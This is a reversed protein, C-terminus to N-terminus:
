SSPVTASMASKAPDDRRRHQEFVTAVCLFEYSQHQEIETAVVQWDRHRRPSQAVDM